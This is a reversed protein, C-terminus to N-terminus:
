ALIAFKTRNRNSAVLLQLRSKKTVEVQQKLYVERSDEVLRTDAAMLDFKQMTLENEIQRKADAMSENTNMGVRAVKSTCPGETSM